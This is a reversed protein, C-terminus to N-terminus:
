YELTGGTKKAFSAAIVQRLNQRLTDEVHILVNSNEPARAESSTKASANFSTLVKPSQFDVLFLEVDIAGPTFSSSNVITPRDYRATRYVLLYRRALGAEFGAALSGDDASNLDAASAYKQSLWYFCSQPFGLLMLDFEPTVEPDLLQEAALVGTNDTVPGKMASRKYSPLPNLNLQTTGSPNDKVSNKPPLLQAIQKLRERMEAYPQRYRQLVEGRTPGTPQDTRQRNCGAALLVIAAILLCMAQAFHNPKM